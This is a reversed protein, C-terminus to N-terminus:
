QTIYLNYLLLKLFIYINRANAVSNKPGTRSLFRTCTCAQHLVRYIRFM